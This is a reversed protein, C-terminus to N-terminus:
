VDSRCHGLCRLKEGVPHKQDYRGRRRGRSAVPVRPAVMEDFDHVAVWYDSDAPNVQNRWTELEKVFWEVLVLYQSYCGKLM